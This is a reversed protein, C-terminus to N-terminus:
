SIQRQCYVGALDAIFIDGAGHLAVGSALELEAVMAPGSDGAFGWNGDGAVTAIAGASDVM